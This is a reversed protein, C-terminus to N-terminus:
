TRFHQPWTATKQTLDLNWEPTRELSCAKTRSGVNGNCDIWQKRNQSTIGEMKGPCFMRETYSARTLFCEWTLGMVAMWIKRRFNSLISWFPKRYCCNVQHWIHAFSKYSSESIMLFLGIEGSYRLAVDELFREIRM